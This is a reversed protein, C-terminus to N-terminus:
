VRAGFVMRGKALLGDRFELRQEYAEVIESESAAHKSHLEGRVLYVGDGATSIETMKLRMYEFSEFIREFLQLIQARGEYTGEEPSGGGPNHEWVSDPTMGEVFAQLDGRGVAANMERILDEHSM